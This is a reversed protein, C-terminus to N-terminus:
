KGSKRWCFGATHGTGTASHLMDLSVSNALSFGTRLASLRTAHDGQLSSMWGALTMDPHAWYSTARERKGELLCWRRGVGCRVADGGM